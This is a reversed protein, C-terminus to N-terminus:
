GVRRAPILHSHNPQSFTPYRHKLSCPQTSKNNLFPQKLGLVKSNRWASPYDLTPAICGAQHAQLELGLHAIGHELHKRALSETAATWRMGSCFRDISARWRWHTVLGANSCLHWATALKHTTAGPQRDGVENRRQEHTKDLRTSDAESEAPPKRVTRSATTNLHPAWAGDADAWLTVNV